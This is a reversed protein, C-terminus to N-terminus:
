APDLEHCRCGHCHYDAVRVGYPHTKTKWLELNEPRNDDRKGNRHHVSEHDLLPRSIMQQMVYRHQPMWRERNGQITKGSGPTGKPVKEWVYGGPDTYTSGTPVKSEYHCETSCFRGASNKSPSFEAGCQECIALGGRLCVFSCYFPNGGARGATRM